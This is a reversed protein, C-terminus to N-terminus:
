TRLLRRAMRRLINTHNEVTNAAVRPEHSADKNNYFRDSLWKLENMLEKAAEEESKPAVKSNTKIKEYLIKWDDGWVSYPIDRFKVFVLRLVWEDRPAEVIWNYVDDAFGDNQLCFYGELDERLKKKYLTALDDLTLGCLENTPRLLGANVDDMKM